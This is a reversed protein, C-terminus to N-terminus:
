GGSSGVGERYASPPCGVKQKFRVSFERASNFGCSEGIEAMTKRSHRLLRKALDMRMRLLQQYPSRGLHEAFLYELNRRSLGAMRAVEDMQLPEALQGEMWRLARAVVPDVSHYYPASEDFHIAAPKLLERCDGIGVGEVLCSIMAALIRKGMAEADPVVSSLRVPSLESCLFDHDVGIVAFEDPVSFGMGSAVKILHRAHHDEACFIGCPRPLTSLWDAVEDNGGQCASYAGRMKGSAEWGARFGAERLRSYRHRGNGFYGAHTLGMQQFHAAAMKGAEGDDMRIWGVDDPVQEPEPRSSYLLVPIGEAHFAKLHGESLWPAIVGQVRPRDAYRFMDEPSNEIIGFRFRADKRV